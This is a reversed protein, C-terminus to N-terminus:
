ASTCSGIEAMLMALVARTQLTREPERLYHLFWVREFTFRPLAQDSDQFFGLLKDLEAMARTFDVEQSKTSGLERNLYNDWSEFISCDGIGKRYATWLAYHPNKLVLHQTLEDVQERATLSAATDAGVEAPRTELFLLQVLNAFIRENLQELAITRAPGILMESRNLERVFEVPFDQKRTKYFSRFLETRGCALMYDRESAPIHERVYAFWDAHNEFDSPMKKTM